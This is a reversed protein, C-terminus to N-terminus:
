HSGELVIMVLGLQSRIVFNVYEACVRETVNHMYQRHTHVCVSGHPVCVCVFAFVREHM